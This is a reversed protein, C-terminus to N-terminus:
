GILDAQGQGSPDDLADQRVICREQDRHVVGQEFPASPLDETCGPQMDARGPARARGAEAVAPHDGPDHHSHREQGPRHAQRHQGPQPTGPVGPLDGQGAFHGFPDRGVERVAGHVHDPIGSVDAFM